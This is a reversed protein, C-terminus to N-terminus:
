RMARPHDLRGPHGGGGGGDGHTLMFSLEIIYSSSVLLTSLGPPGSDEPELRDAEPEAESEM